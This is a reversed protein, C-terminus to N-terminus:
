ARQSPRGHGSEDSSDLTPDITRGYSRKGVVDLFHGRQSQATGSGAGGVSHVGEHFRELTGTGCAFAAENSPREGLDSRWCPLRHWKQLRQEDIVAGFHPLGGCLGQPSDQTLLILWSRLGDHRCTPFTSSYTRM